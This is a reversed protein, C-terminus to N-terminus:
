KVDFKRFTSTKIYQEYIEPQEAKLRKSDITNREQSKWFVKRDGATGYEYDGLIGKLKNAYKDKETKWFKENEKAKEFEVILEDATQPLEMSLANSVPYRESLLDTSSQTGDWDPQIGAKVHNNWFDSAVETMQEILEDDREIRKHFFKNGGILAAIYGWKYGTVNFYHQLQLYYSPPIEDENWSDKLWESATKCELIGPGDEEKSVIVRDVNALLFPHTDHQLLFNNRRVKLGTRLTFEEAVFDELRNGFYAAESIEEQDPLEGVKDLYVDVPGKYKNFGMLAGIDSGGIGQKRFRLWVERSLDAVNTVRIAM